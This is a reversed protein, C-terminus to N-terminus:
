NVSYKKLILYGLLGAILSAALIGLKAQNILETTEFALNAVFLSMTFGIGALFGAGIIHNWQMDVPLSTWKLKVMLWSFGTIGIFKGVLLGLFTGLTVSQIQTFSEAQLTIGANALAFLPMVVLAVLGHLGHELRQLPTDAAKTLDKIKEIVHVQERELLTIDNPPIQLFENTYAKLKKTFDIEDIKTRAPITLAALVGAITAHVGSLMFALWVGFIGITGYFTANRIGLLNAGMLVALFGVGISLNIFSIHSTYFLAIVLVAGLDDAIALATIFIKLSLPIRKGLLALVGLAFAIDTAMPIGWGQLEPVQRNVAIYILAPTLMGGIAAAIPLIAQRPESLEGAIIERKLELGIVFFFMAMLGDNIWHHFSKSIMFGPFGINFEHEWLHHYAYAWPSNAWVLAILASVFLIIGGTSENKIFRNVPKLLTDIPAKTM